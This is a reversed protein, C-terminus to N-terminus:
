QVLPPEGLNVIENSGIQIRDMNSITRVSPETLEESKGLLQQMQGSQAQGLLKVLEAATM